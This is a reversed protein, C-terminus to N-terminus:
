RSSVALALKECEINVQAVKCSRTIQPCGQESSSSTKLDFKIYQGDGCVVAKGGSLLAMSLLPKYSVKIQKVSFLTKNFIILCFVDFFELFQYSAFRLM